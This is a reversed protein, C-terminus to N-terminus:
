STLVIAKMQTNEKAWRNVAAQNPNIRNSM